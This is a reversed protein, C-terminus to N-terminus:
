VAFIFVAVLVAAAGFMLTAYQRIQGTQIKRLFQGSESATRGSANVTGDVVGQDIFRYVFRGAIVASRGATNVVGDIVNQNIWYAARALPGKTGAVVGDNYLHDLYYKNDLVNYGAAALANKSRIGDTYESAKPDKAYLRQYYRL